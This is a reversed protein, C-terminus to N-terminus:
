RVALIGMFWSKSWVGEMGMEEIDAGHVRCIGKQLTYM